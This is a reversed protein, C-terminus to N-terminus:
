FVRCGLMELNSSRHQMEGRREQREKKSLNHDRRIEGKRERDRDRAEMRAVLKFASHLRAKSATHSGRVKRVVLSSCRM